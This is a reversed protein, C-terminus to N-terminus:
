KAARAILKQRLHQPQLVEVLKPVSNEPRCTTGCTFCDWFAMGREPYTHLSAHSEALIAVATLGQPEFAYWHVGLVTAGSAKAAESVLSVLAAQNALAESNCGMLTVLMHRGVVARSTGSQNTIKSHSIM